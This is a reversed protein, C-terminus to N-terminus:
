SQMPDPVANLPVIGHSRDERQGREM